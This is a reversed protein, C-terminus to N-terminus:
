TSGSLPRTYAGPRLGAHHAHEVQARPARLRGTFNGLAAVDRLAPCRTDYPQGETEDATLRTNKLIGPQCHPRSNKRDRSEDDRKILAPLVYIIIIRAVDDDGV